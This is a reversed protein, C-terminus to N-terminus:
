ENVRKKRFLVVLGIGVIITGLLSFASQTTSNVSASPLETLSTESQNITNHVEKKESNQFKVKKNLEQVETVEDM